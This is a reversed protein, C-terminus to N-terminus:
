ELWMKALYCTSSTTISGTTAEGIQNAAIESKGRTVYLRCLRTSATNAICISTVYYKGTLASIDLSLPYETNNMIFIGKLRTFDTIDIADAAGACSTTANATLPFAILTEEFSANVPTYNSNFTWNDSGDLEVGCEGNDYLVGDFLIYARKWDVWETGNFIQIMDTTADWHMNSGGGYSEGNIVIKGM